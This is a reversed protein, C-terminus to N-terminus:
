ERLDKRVLSKRVGVDVARDEPCTPSVDDLSEVRASRTVVLSCSAMRLRVFMLTGYARGYTNYPTNLTHDRTM